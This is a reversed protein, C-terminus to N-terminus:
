VWLIKHKHGNPDYGLVSAEHTEGSDWVLKIPTGVQLEISTEKPLFIQHSYNILVGSEGKIQRAPIIKRIHCEQANIWDSYGGPVPFGKENRTGATVKQKYFLISNFRAM